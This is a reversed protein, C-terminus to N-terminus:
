RRFIRVRWWFSTPRYARRQSDEGKVVLQRARLRATPTFYDINDRFFEALEEEDPAKAEAATTTMSIM